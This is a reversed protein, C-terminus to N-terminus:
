VFIRGFSLSKGTEIGIGTEIETEIGGIRIGTGTEIEGTRTVIGETANVTVIGTEEERVTETEIVETKRETMQRGLLPYMIELIVMFVTKLVLEELRSYFCRM